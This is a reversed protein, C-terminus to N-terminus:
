ASYVGINSKFVIYVVTNKLSSYEGSDVKALFLVTMSILVENKQGSLCWHLSKVIIYVRTM